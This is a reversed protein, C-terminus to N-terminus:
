PSKVEEAVVTELKHSAPKQFKELGSYDILQIYLDKLKRHKGDASPERKFHFGDAVKKMIAKNSAYLDLASYAQLERIISEIESDTIKDSAYRKALFARLDEVILVEGENHLGRDIESGLVHPYGQEGLLRIISDELQAETFKM